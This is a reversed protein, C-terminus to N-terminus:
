VVVTIKESARTIGTYLHRRWASGFMGSQDFLVVNGWQSGQSKHVTLAYGYTFQQLGMLEQWPIDKWGGVFFEKRVEVDVFDSEPFDESKILLEITDGGQTNDVKHVTYIGGNFIGLNHDNKLCVLRDGAVPLPKPLNLIERLRGNYLERTNNRGVLVQDAESVMDTTISTSDIVASQGYTNIAPRHGNRVMTALQIIPNGEAQRHIETLMMDPERNTFFGGSKVPPLQAPDGLVLVPKDYRLLDAGIDEGVMSCEDIVIIGADSCVGAHDFHFTYKGTMEDRVSKYITSHITNADICGSKRMVVAAKGTYAAFVTKGDAQQSLKKAITTKGTGAYGALYFVQENRKSLWNSILESAKKQQPSFDM